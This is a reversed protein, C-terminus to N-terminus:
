YDITVNFAVFDNSPKYYTKNLKAVAILTGTYKAQNVGTKIGFDINSKQAYMLNSLILGILILFFTKTKNM